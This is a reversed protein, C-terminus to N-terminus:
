VWGAIGVLVLPLFVGAELGDLALCLVFGTWILRVPHRWGDGPAAEQAGTPPLVVGALVACVLLRTLTVGPWALAAATAVLAVALGATLAWSSPREPRSRLSTAGAAVAVAAAVIPGWLVFDAVLRTYLYAGAVWCGARARRFPGTESVAPSLGMLAVPWPMLVLGLFVAETWFAGSFESGVLLNWLFDFTTPQAM